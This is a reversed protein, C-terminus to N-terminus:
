PKLANKVMRHFTFQKKMRLYTMVPLPIPHPGSFIPITWATLLIPQVIFVRRSRWYHTTSPRCLSRICPRGVRCPDSWLTRTTRFSSLFIMGDLCTIPITSGIFSLSPLSLRTESMIPLFCRNYGCCVFGKFWLKILGITDRLFFWIACQCEDEELLAKLLPAVLSSASFPRPNGTKTLIQQLHMHPLSHNCMLILLLLTLSPLHWPM